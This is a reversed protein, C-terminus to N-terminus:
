WAAAGVAELIWRTTVAAAEAAEAAREIACPQESQKKMSAAVVPAAAAEVLADSLDGNWGVMALVFALSEPIM